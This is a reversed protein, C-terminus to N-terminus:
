RRIEYDLQVSNSANAVSFYPVIPANHPIEVYCEPDFVIATNDALAEYFEIMYFIEIDSALADTSPGTAFTVRIAYKEEDVGDDEGAGKAWNAPPEFYAYNESSVNTYDIASILTLTSWSSGNYYQTVPTAIAGGSGATSIGIRILNFKEFSQIIFGDGDGATLAFDNTGADQADTTDDVYEPDESADLQGAIWLSLPIRFGL